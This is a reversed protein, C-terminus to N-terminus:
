AAKALLALEDHLAFGPVVGSVGADTEAVIPVGVEKCARVLLLNFKAMKDFHTINEPNSM